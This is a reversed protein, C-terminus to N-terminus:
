PAPTDEYSFYVVESVNGDPNRVQVAVTGPALDDRGLEDLRASVETEDNFTTPQRLDGWLIEAGEVFGSGTAIIIQPPMTYVASAPNLSDLQPGTEVASPAEKTQGIQALVDGSSSDKVYLTGRVVAVAGAALTVADGESKAGGIVTGDSTEITFPHQVTQKIPEEGSM